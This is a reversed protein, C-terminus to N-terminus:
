DLLKKFAGSIFKELKILIRYSLVTHIMKYWVYNLKDRYLLEEAVM